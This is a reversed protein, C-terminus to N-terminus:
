MMTVEGEKRRYSANIAVAMIILLGKFVDQYFYPINMLTFGNNLVGIILAGVFTGPLNMQGEKFVTSGLFSAAIADLTFTTGATPQGTGLRATMVLGSIAAMLGSIAFAILVIKKNNIGSLRSAEPNSGVAHLYRGYRMQTLDTQALIFLFLLIIVPMPIGLFYGQGFFVFNSKIGEYIPRGGCAMYTLGNAVSSSALTCIFSRVGGYAVLFGNFLGFLVGSIIGALIGLLTSGTSSLAIASYIGVLSAISGVSLDINGSLIVHTMGFSCISLLSIQLLINMFNNISLFRSNMIMFFICLIFLALLTGYKKLIIQFDLKNQKFINNIM